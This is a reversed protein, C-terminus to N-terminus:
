MCLGTISDCTGGGACFQTAANAGTLSAIRADFFQAQHAYMYLGVRGGDYGWPSLDFAFAAVKREPASSPTFYTRLQNNKVILVMRTKDSATGRTIEFDLYAPLYQWPTVTGNPLGSHFVGFADAYAVAQYCANTYNTVFGCDFRGDRKMVKFNPGDVQDASPSPWTDIRKHIKFHDLEDKFGFIFGVGDNDYNDVEIQFVFDTFSGGKYL